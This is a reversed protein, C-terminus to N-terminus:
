GHRPKESPPVNSRHNCFARDANGTRGELSPLVAVFCFVKLNPLPGVSCAARSAPFLGCMEAFTEPTMDPIATTDSSPMM